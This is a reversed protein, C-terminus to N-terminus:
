CTQIQQHKHINVMQLNTTAAYKSYKTQLCVVSSDRSNFIQAIVATSFRLGSMHLIHFLHANQVHLRDGGAITM